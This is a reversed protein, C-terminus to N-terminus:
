TGFEGARVLRWYAERLDPPCLPHLTTCGYIGSFSTVRGKKDVPVGRLTPHNSHLYLGFSSMIDGVLKDEYVERKIHSLPERAVLRAARNSLWYGVGGNAWPAIFPTQDVIAYNKANTGNALRAEPLGYACKNAHWMTDWVGTRGAPRGMYDRSRLYNKIRPLNCLTDDDAKLVWSPDWRAMVERIGAWTKQPLGLYTDPCDLYLIDGSLAPEQGPRGVLFVVRMGDPIGHQLFTERCAERRDNMAQCSLLMVVTDVKPHTSEALQPIIHDADRGFM